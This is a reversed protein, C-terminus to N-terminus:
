ARLVKNFISQFRGDELPSHKMEVLKIFEGNSSHHNGGGDTEVVIDSLCIRSSIGVSCISKEYINHDWSFGKPKQHRIM